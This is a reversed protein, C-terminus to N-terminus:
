KSTNLYTRIGKAISYAIKDQYTDSDLLACETRNSLFGCEVIIAPCSVNKLIYYSSNSKHQRTNDPDAYSILCNQVCSALYESNDSTHYYFTQAGHVEESPYSNQHISVMLDPQVNEILAVRNQMDSQKKNRDTEDCLSVDEERTMYVICDQAELYTRLKRAIELNIDKELTNDVAVKGPDYGGHGVDIVIVSQTRSTRFADLYTLRFALFGLLLSICLLLIHHFRPKHNM